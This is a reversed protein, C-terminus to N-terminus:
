FAKFGDEGGVGERKKKLGSLILIFGFNLLFPTKSRGMGKRKGGFYQVL